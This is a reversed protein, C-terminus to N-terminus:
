SKMKRKTKVWRPILIIEIIVLLLIPYISLSPCCSALKKVQGWGGFFSFIRNKSLIKKKVSNQILRDFGKLFSQPM